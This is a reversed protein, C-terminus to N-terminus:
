SIFAENHAVRVLVSFWLFVVIWDRWSFIPGTSLIDIPL